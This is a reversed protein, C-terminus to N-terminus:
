QWTICWWNLMWCNYARGLRYEHTKYNDSFLCRSADSVAYISQNQLRSSFHKCRPVSQTKLYLMRRKTKLPNVQSLSTHQSTHRQSHKARGSLLGYDCVNNRKVMSCYNRRYCHLWSDVNCKLFQVTYLRRWSVAHAEGTVYRCINM